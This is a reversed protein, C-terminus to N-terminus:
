LKVENLIHALEGTQRRRNYRSLLAPDPSASLQGGRWAAFLEILTSAILDPNDPPVIHGVRAKALLDAAAGTPILALISKGAALYEFIKGTFVIDSGPGAGIILLLADACLQQAIMEAHPLYGTLEVVDDLGWETVLRALEYGTNGVFRVCIDTRAILDRDLAHRLATLFPRASQRKGYLSGTYVLTFRADRKAPKVDEFDAPDFGNPLTIFRTPPLDPYRALFQQRMPESVTLVHNATSVIERELRACIARHIPTVFDAYFNGLWPDRFDAV